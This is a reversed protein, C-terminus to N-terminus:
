RFAAATIVRFAQEDLIVDQRGPPLVDVDFLACYPIVMPAGDVVGNTHVDVEACSYPQQINVSRLDCPPENVPNQRLGDLYSTTLPRPANVPTLQWREFHVVTKKISILIVIRVRGKSAGLWWRADDVLKPLSESLRTKIVM